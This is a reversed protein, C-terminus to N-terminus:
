IEYTSRRLEEQTPALQATLANDSLLVERRFTNQEVNAAARTKVGMITGGKGSEAEIQEAVANMLCGTSMLRDGQRRMRTLLERGEADVFTTAAMNMRLSKSLVAALMSEWGKELEKVWLGVLRGAVVFSTVQVNGTECIKLLFGDEKVFTTTVQAKDHITMGFM